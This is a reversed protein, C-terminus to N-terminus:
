NRENTEKRILDKIVNELKLTESKFDDSLINIPKGIIIKTHYNFFKPKGIIAFPVIPKNAKYAISCAGYKFPMIVDNTKNITGEPFICIIKGEHLAKIAEKKAEPNKNKRDVPILGLLKFFLANFKKSFLEKKALYHISRFTVQGLIFADYYSKHTGAFVFGTKPINEKGIVKTKMFLIVFPRLINSIILYFINNKRKKKM